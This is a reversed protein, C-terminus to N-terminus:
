RLSSAKAGRRSYRGRSRTIAEARQANGEGLDAVPDIPTTEVLRPSPLVAEASEIFYPTQPPHHSMGRYGLDFTDCKLTL